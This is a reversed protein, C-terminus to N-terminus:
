RTAMCPTERVGLLQSPTCQTKPLFSSPLHADPYDRALSVSLEFFLRQDAPLNRM